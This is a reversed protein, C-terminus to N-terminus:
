RECPASSMNARAFTRSFILFINPLTSWVRVSFVYVRESLHAALKCIAHVRTCVCLRLCVYVCLCLQACTCVSHCCTLRWFCTKRTLRWVRTSLVNLKKAISPALALGCKNNTSACPVAPECCPSRLGHPPVAHTNLRGPSILIM